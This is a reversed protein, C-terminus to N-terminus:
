PVVAERRRRQFVVLWNQRITDKLKGLVENLTGPLTRVFALRQFKSFPHAEKRAYKTTKDAVICSMGNASIIEHTIQHLAKM